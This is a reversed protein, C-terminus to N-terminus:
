LPSIGCSSSLMVSLRATACFAFARKFLTRLSSGSVHCFTISKGLPSLDAIHLSPRGLTPLVTTRVKLPLVFCPKASPESRSTASSVWAWSTLCSSHSGSM